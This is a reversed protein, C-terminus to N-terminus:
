QYTRRVLCQALCKMNVLCHRIARQVTAVHQRNDSCTLARACRSEVDFVRMTRSPVPVGLGSGSRDPGAVAITTLPVGYRMSKPGPTTRRIAAAECFPTAPNDTKFM